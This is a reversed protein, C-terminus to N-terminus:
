DGIGHRFALMLTWHRSGGFANTNRFDPDIGHMPHTEYGSVVEINSYEQGDPLTCAYDTRQVLSQYHTSVRYRSLACSEGDVDITGTGQYELTAVVDREDHGKLMGMHWMWNFLVSKLDTADTAPTYPEFSEREAGSQAGATSAAGVALVVIAAALVSTRLDMSRPKM